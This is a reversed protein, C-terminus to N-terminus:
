VNLEKRCNECVPKDKYILIKKGGGCFV